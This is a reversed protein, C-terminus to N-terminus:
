LWKRSVPYMFFFSFNFLFKERIRKIQIIKSMNMRECGMKYKIKKKKFWVVFAGDNSDECKCDNLVHYMLFFFFFGLGKLDNVREFAYCFLSFPFFVHEDKWICLLFFDSLPPLDGGRVGWGSLWVWIMLLYMNRFEEWMYILGGDLWDVFCLVYMCLCWLCIKLTNTGEIMGRNFSCM